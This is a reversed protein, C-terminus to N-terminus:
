ENVRQNLLTQQGLLKFAYDRFTTKNINEIIIFRDKDKRMHSLLTFLKNTDSCAAIVDNFYSIKVEPYRHLIRQRLKEM